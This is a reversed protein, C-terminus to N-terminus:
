FMNLEFIVEVKATKLKQCCHREHHLTCCTLELIQFSCSHPRDRRIKGESLQQCLITSFDVTCNSEIRVWTTCSNQFSLQGIDDWYCYTRTMVEITPIDNGCVVKRNTTFFQFGPCPLIGWFCSQRHVIGLVRSVIQRVIKTGVIDRRGDAKKLYDSKSTIRSHNRSSSCYCM